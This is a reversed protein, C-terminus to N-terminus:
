GSKAPFLSFWTKKFIHVMKKNTSSMKSAGWTM